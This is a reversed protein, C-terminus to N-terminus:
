ALLYVLTILQKRVVTTPDKSRLFRGSPPWDNHDLSFSPHIPVPSFKSYIELYFLLNLTWYVYHRHGCRCKKFRFGLLGSSLVYVISVLDFPHVIKIFFVVSGMCKMYTGRLMSWGHTTVVLLLGWREYPKDCGSRSVNLLALSTNRPGLVWPLLRKSYM